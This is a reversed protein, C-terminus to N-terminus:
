NTILRTMYISKAPMKREWSASAFLTADPVGVDASASGKFSFGAPAICERLRTYIM